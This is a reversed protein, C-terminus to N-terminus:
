AQDRIFFQVITSSNSGVNVIMASVKTGASTHGQTPHASITISQGQRQTYVKQNYSQALDLQHRLSMQNLFFGIGATFLMAFLIVAALIGAVGHSKSGPIKM